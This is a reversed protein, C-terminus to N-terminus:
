QAPIHEPLQLPPLALLTPTHPLGPPMTGLATGQSPRYVSVTVASAVCVCVLCVPAPHGRRGGEYDVSMPACLFEDEYALFVRTDVLSCPSLPTACRGLAVWLFVCGTVECDKDCVVVLFRLTWALPAWRHPAGDGAQM